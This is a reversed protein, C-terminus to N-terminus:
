KITNKNGGIITARNSGNDITNNTGGVVFTQESSVM